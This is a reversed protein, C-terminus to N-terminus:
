LRERVHPLLRQPMWEFAKDAHREIVKVPQESDRVHCMCGQRSLTMREVMPLVDAVAAVM